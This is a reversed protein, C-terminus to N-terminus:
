APRKKVAIDFVIWNREWEPNKAKLQFLVKKRIDLTSIGDKVGTGIDSAIARAIDPSAGTKIASVVIKEPIFTEKRGDRKIVMTM